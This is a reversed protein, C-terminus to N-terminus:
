NQTKYVQDALSSLQKSNADNTNQVSQVLTQLELIKKVDAQLSEINSQNQKALSVCNTEDYSQYTTAGERICRPPFWNFFLLILLIALILILM